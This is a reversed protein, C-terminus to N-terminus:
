LRQTNGRQRLGWQKGLSLAHFTLVVTNRVAGGGWSCLTSRSNHENNHKMIDLAGAELGWPLLWGQGLGAGRSSDMRRPNRWVGCAGVDLM